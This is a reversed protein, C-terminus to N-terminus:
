KNTKEFIKMLRAREHREDIIQFRLIAHEQWDTSLIKRTRLYELRHEICNIRQVLQHKRANAFSAQQM